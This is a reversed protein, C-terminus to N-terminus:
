LIEAGTGKGLLTRKMPKLRADLHYVLPVANPVELKAVENDPMNEILKILARLSNGHGAVLPRKGSLVAHAIPGTWLPRLRRVVEALSEGKPISERPLADYRADIMAEGRSNGHGRPPSVDYSRRWRHVADAGYLRVAGPKSMGTLRGYHRENLRWDLVVPIWVRNLGELLAWASRICRRLLSSYALDVDVGRRRLARGAKMMQALGERTVDVDAWGTFRGKQNWASMGHRVLVLQFTRRKM